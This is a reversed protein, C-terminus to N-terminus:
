LTIAKSSKALFVVLDDFNDFADLFVFFANNNCFESAIFFIVDVCLVVAVSQLVWSEVAEKAQASDWSLWAQVQWNSNHSRPPPSVGLLM